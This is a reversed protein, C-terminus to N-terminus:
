VVVGVFMVVCLGVVGGYVVVFVMGFVVIGFMVGIM